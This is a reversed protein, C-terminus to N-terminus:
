RKPQKQSFVLIWILLLGIFCANAYRATMASDQTSTLEGARLVNTHVIGGAITLVIWIVSFLLAKKWPKM